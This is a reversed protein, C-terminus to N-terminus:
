GCSETFKVVSLSHLQYRQTSCLAGCIFVTSLSISFHVVLYKLFNSFWM